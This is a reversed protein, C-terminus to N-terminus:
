NIDFAGVRRTASANKGTMLGKKRSKYVVVCSCCEISRKM